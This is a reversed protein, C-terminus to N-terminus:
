KIVKFFRSAGGKDNHGRVSNKRYNLQQVKDGGGGKGRWSQISSSEGSQEDLMKASSEPNVISYGTPRFYRLWAEPVDGILIELTQKGKNTQPSTSHSKYQKNDGFERNQQREQNRKQPSSNRKEKITQGSENGNNVQTRNNIKQEDDAEGDKIRKREAGGSKHEQIRQQLVLGQIKQKEGETSENEKNSGQQTEKRVNTSSLEQSSHQLMEESLVEGDQESIDSVREWMTSMKYNEYYQSITREIMKDLNDILTLVQIYSQELIINAPFRGLKSPELDKQPIGKGGGYINVENRKRNKRPTLEDTKIRGGDINLGSVGWNLANNAYTGENPKMAVIIPEYAPKLGHSKWGNWSRIEHAEWQKCFACPKRNPQQKSKQRQSAGSGKKKTIEELAEGNSVQTANHIRRKKGNTSVRESMESIDGGQLQGETKKPNSGREVSSQVERIKNPFQMSKSSISQESLSHQLVERQKDKLNFTQPLNTESMPRMRSKTNQESEEYVVMNGCKCQKQLNKYLDTAKPFGTSYLWMICDKLIWGADEIACALRHYTRTGGFVLMTAGPKAVRLAEKWVETVPISKDWIKGMFELGYPPDTIITDISNEEMKKIEEIADGCIIESTM